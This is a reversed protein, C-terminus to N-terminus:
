SEKGGKWVYFLDNMRPDEYPGYLKRLHLSRLTFNSYAQFNEKMWQEFQKRM